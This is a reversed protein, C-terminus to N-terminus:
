LDEVCVELVTANLLVELAKALDDDKCKFTICVKEQASLARVTNRNSIEVSFKPKAFNAKPHITFSRKKQIQNM